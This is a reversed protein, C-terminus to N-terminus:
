VLFVVRESCCNPVRRLSNCGNGDSAPKVAALAFGQESLRLKYQDMVALRAENGHIEVQEWLTLSIASSSTQLQGRSGSCLEFSVM